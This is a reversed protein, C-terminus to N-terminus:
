PLVIARCTSISHCSCFHDATNRYNMCQVSCMACSPKRQWGPPSPEIGLAHQIVLRGAAALTPADGADVIAQLAAHTNTDTWVHILCGGPKVHSM